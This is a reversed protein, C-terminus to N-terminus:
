QPRASRHQAQRITIYAAEAILQAAPRCLTTLYPVPVGDVTLTYERMAPDIAHPVSSVIVQSGSISYEIEVLDPVGDTNLDTRRGIIMDPKFGFLAALYFAIIRALRQQRGPHPEDDVPIAGVYSWAVTNRPM